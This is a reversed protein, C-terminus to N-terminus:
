NHSHLMGAAESLISFIHIKVAQLAKLLWHGSPFQPKKAAKPLLRKGSYKKLIGRQHEMMRQKPSLPFFHPPLTERLSRPADHLSLAADEPSLCLILNFILSATYLEWVSGSNSSATSTLQEQCVQAPSASAKQGQSSYSQLGTSLQPATPGRLLWCTAAHNGLQKTTTSSQSPHSSAPIPLGLEAPPPCVHMQKCSYSYLLTVGNHGLPSSLLGWKKTCNRAANWSRSSIVKNFQSRHCTPSCHLFSRLATVLQLSSFSIPGRRLSLHHPLHTKTHSWHLQTLYCQCSTSHRRLM